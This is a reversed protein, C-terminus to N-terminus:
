EIAHELLMVAQEWTDVVAIFGNAHVFSVGAKGELKCFDVRPHDDIRFLSIGGRLNVSVSIGAEPANKRQWVSLGEQPNKEGEKPPLHLVQLGKCVNMHIRSSLEKQRYGFSEVEKLITEGLSQLVSYVPTDPGHQDKSGFLGILMQGIPNFQAKFLVPVAIGLTDAMAKPGHCDLHNVTGLWPLAELLYEDSVGPFMDRLILHFACRGEVEGGGQHHDFNGKRPDYQMGIDVCLVKPDEMEGKTPVRRHIHIGPYRAALVACALTDDAHAQGGHVIATDPSEDEWLLLGLGACRDMEEQQYAVRPDESSRIPTGTFEEVEASLDGGFSWYRLLEAAMACLDLDLDGVVPSGPLAALWASNWCVLTTLETDAGQGVFLESTFAPVSYRSFPVVLYEGEEMVVDVVAVYVAEEAPVLSSALRRIQGVRLPIDEPYSKPVSLTRTPADAGGLSLHIEREKMWTAEFAHRINDVTSTSNKMINM